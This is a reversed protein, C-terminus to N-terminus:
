ENEAKPVVTLSQSFDREKITIVETRKPAAEQPKEQIGATKSQALTAELALKYQGEGMAKRYIEEQRALLTGQLEKRQEEALKVFGNVIQYYQTEVTKPSINFKAAVTEIVYERGYGDTILTHIMKYRNLLEIKTARAM